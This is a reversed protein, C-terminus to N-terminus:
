GVPADPSGSRSGGCGGLSLLAAAVAVGCYSKMANEEQLPPAVSRRSTQRFSDCNQEGSGKSANRYANGVFGEFIAIGTWGSHEKQGPSSSAVAEFGQRQRAATEQGPLRRATTM